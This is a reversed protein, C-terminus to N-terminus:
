EKIIGVVEQPSSAHVLSEYLSKSRMLRAIEALAEIHPGSQGPPALLLFFLHSLKGDLADFDAGKKSIGVAITLKKVVDTKAHPVAIGDELGTSGKAEREMIATYVPEIESIEGAETLVGLLERIIEPKSTSALPVRVVEQIILDILAM